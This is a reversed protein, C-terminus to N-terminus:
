SGWVFSSDLDDWTLNALDFTGTIREGAANHAVKGAALTGPTVTDNTLDLKTVNNVVVKNVYQNTNSM